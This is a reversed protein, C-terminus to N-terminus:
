VEVYCEGTKGNGFDNGLALGPKITEELSRCGAELGKGAGADWTVRSPRLGREFGEAIVGHVGVGPPCDSHGEMRRAARDVVRNVM